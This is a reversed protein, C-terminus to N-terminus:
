AGLLARVSGLPGWKGADIQNCGALEGLPQLVCAIGHANEIDGGAGVLKSQPNFHPKPAIREELKEIRFRKKRAPGTSDPQEGSKRNQKSAM